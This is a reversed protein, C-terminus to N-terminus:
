LVAQLERLSNSNPQIPPAAEEVEGDEEALDALEHVLEAQGEDDLDLVGAHGLRPGRVTVACDRRRKSWIRATVGLRPKVMHAGHGGPKVMHAGHGRPSAGSLRLGELVHSPHHGHLFRSRVAM